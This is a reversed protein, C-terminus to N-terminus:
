NDTTKAKLMEVIRPQGSKRAWALPTAWTEAVPEEARAGHELLLEVLEVRGWRCAWGLPTSKLLEDRLTLDPSNELVIQAFKLREDKTMVEVDWVKGAAVIAHMLTDGYKGTLNINMGHELIVSLCKPYTSRDFCEPHECVPSHNFLGLPRAMISFWRPDSAAWGLKPLGMRLIEPDGGTAAAWLLDRVMSEECPSELLKRAAETERNIGITMPSPHGGHAALLQKMQEDRAGYARDVPNGSAYVEGKPDAGRELLLSAIEYEGFAAALWLPHGWSPVEAEVNHLRRREDPDLGLDLLLKVAEPKGFMVAVSLVGAENRSEDTMAKPDREHLERLAELDGLAAAVIPSLPAGHRIMCHAIEPFSFRRERKKWYVGRVARELPTQGKLDEKRPNARHELLWDIVALAGVECAKHLPTGGERDCAQALGPDAELMALAAAMDGREIAENLEDQAASVTANPCSMSERRFREEEEIATVINGFDREKALQYATTAERHPYIGKHADAGTEVLLRVMPEDRRLVAYHLVRHENDEAMDMHVLEPRQRLLARAERTNGREVAMVLRALNVRDVHVRLKVWGDFGHHRAIVLQAGALQLGGVPIERYHREVIEKALPEGAEFAKLLDKAQRKLQDLDNHESLGSPLHFM